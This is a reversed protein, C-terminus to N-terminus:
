RPEGGPMVDYDRGEVPEGFIARMDTVTPTPEADRVILDCHKCNTCVCRKGCTCEDPSGECGCPCPATDAYLRNVEEAFRLLRELDRRVHPFAAIRARLQQAMLSQSGEPLKALRATDLTNTVTEGDLDERLLEFTRPHFAAM